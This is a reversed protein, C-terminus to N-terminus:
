RLMDLTQGLQLLRSVCATKLAVFFDLTKAYLLTSQKEKKTKRRKFIFSM